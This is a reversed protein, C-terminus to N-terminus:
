RAVWVGISRPWRARSLARRPRCCSAVARWSRASACVALAVAVVLGAVLGLRTTVFTAGGLRELLRGTLSDSAGPAQGILADVTYGIIKPNVFDLMAVAFTMVASLAFYRVSGRLFAALLRARTPYRAATRQKDM